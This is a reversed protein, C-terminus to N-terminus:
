EKDKWELYAGRAKKKEPAVVQDSQQETNNKHTFNLTGDPNQGTVVFDKPAENNGDRVADLMERASESAHRPMTVGNVVGKTIALLAGGVLFMVTFTIVIDIAPVIASAMLNTSAALADSVNSFQTAAVTATATANVTGNIAAAGSTTNQLEQYMLPSYPVFGM